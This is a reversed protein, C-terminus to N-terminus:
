DVTVVWNGGVDEINYTYSFNNCSLSFGTTWIHATMSTVSNCTFGYAKVLDVASKIQTDTIGESFMSNKKPENKHPASNTAEKTETPIRNLLESLLFNTSSPSGGPYLQTITLKDGNIEYTITEDKPDNRWRGSTDGSDSAWIVRNTQDYIKCKYAWISGDKPRKYSLYAVGESLKNVTIINTPRVMIVSMAATCIQPIRATEDTIDTKKQTDIYAAVLIIAIGGLWWVQKKPPIRKYFAYLGVPWFVILWFWAWGTNFWNKKDINLPAHPAALNSQEVSPRQNNEFPDDKTNATVKVADHSTTTHPCSESATSPSSTIKAAMRIRAKEMLPRNILMYLTISTLLAFGATEISFVPHDFAYVSIAGGAMAYVAVLTSDIESLQDATKPNGCFHCIEGSFPIKNGCRSCKM